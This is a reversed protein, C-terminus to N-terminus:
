LKQMMQIFKDNEIKTGVSVRLTDACNYQTSRNRVIVGKKILKNYIETANPIRFLIFNAETPFVEIVKKNSKLFSILRERENIIGTKIAKWNISKLENIATKQVLSSLNYPPKISNLATIWESSAIAMGIRLGAMGYAKSLTQVVILNPYNNVEDVVSNSTCFDIYAEDIVVVGNFEKVIELIKTKCIIGGTPNNPNCIVLLKSGNAQSLIESVSINFKSDLNIPITRVGNVKALVPYMGYSPNLYAASDLFPTATLRFILDLVEDSGNGLFINESPVNKAISIESKLEFQLPDPYRNYATVLGNENADLFVEGLGEFEDRASSYSKVDRFDNRIFTQIKSVSDSTQQERISSAYELRVKVANAHGQLEEAEAMTIVTQALNRIGEDSVKQYTIKKVFSDLSVGSYSRAFGSTPLTHNTGSAYDGFSEATNKGIFVSGANIVKKLVLEEYKGMIILHEPAYSNIIESWNEAEVVIATSAKMAERAIGARPLIALQKEIETLVEDVFLIQDSLFIVQSDTGHEAQALLDAAVFSAPISNDAAVLVESPGAPMDIAIGLRQAYQKAATVYQNGPGFIKDAKPISETGFSMAAIAQAGGVKYVTEIGAMKAAFLIAPHIKGERNPPTCLYRISSGAIKAPIGLMLVTSFLPATGGPVYLGVRQIPLSKRWCVVGPSTEVEYEKNEQSRHFREINQAAVQIAEKLEFSVLQNAEDFEPKSVALDTISVQDFQLTLAKLAKDKDSEVQTFIDSIISELNTSELKPRNLALTLELQSPNILVKM